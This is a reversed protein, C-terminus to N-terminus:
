KKDHQMREVIKKYEVYSYFRDYEQTKHNFKMPIVGTGKPRLRSHLTDYCWALLEALCARLNRIRTRMKLKWYSYRTLTNSSKKMNQSLM